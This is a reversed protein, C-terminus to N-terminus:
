NTESVTENIAPSTSRTGRLHRYVTARSVGLNAAIQDVTHSGRTHMSRATRIQEVSLAPPRGAGRRGAGTSPDTGTASNTGTSSGTGTSRAIGAPAGVADAPGSATGGAPEAAEAGPRAAPPGYGGTAPSQGPPSEGLLRAVGDLMDARLQDDPVDTFFVIPDGLMAVAQVARIRELRTADAGAVLGYAQLALQMIRAYTSGRALLTMDHYLTGLPRRHALLTDLWGALAAWRAAPWPLRAARDLAAELDSLLPEALAVLLHEKSPFHYLVGAKTLGLRDAIERLSTRQYGHAAFLDLATRLIRGRTDLTPPRDM